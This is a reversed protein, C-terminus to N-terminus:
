FRLAPRLRLRVWAAMEPSIREMHALKFIPLAPVVAMLVPIIGARTVSADMRMMFPEFSPKVDARSGLVGLCLDAELLESITNSEFILDAGRGVNAWLEDLPIKGTESGVLLARHAGAALYRATDTGQGAQTEELIHGSIGYDHSTVKVATWRFEPLAAILGCVLSTKGVGKGSGGVVIVAM